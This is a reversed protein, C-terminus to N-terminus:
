VRERCSARGIERSSKARLIQAQSPGIDVADRMVIDEGSIHVNGNVFGQRARASLISHDLGLSQLHNELQSMRKRTKSRLVIARNKLAKKKLRAENKQLTHKERIQEAKELIEQDEDDM